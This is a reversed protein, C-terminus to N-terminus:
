VQSGDLEPRAFRKMSVPGTTKLSAEAQNLRPQDGNVIVLVAGAEVLQEYAESAQEDVGWQQANGLLSGVAAGLAVGVLPGFLILPGILTGAAVPAALAGGLLGGVGAGSVSGPNDAGGEALKALNALEPDDSRSIFSVQDQDFGAKALVELGVRAKQTNKFEAVLCQQHM